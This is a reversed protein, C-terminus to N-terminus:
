QEHLRAAAGRVHGAALIGMSVLTGWLV